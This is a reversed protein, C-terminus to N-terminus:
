RGIFELTYQYRTGPLMTSFDARLLRASMVRGESDSLDGVTLGEHLARLQDRTTQGCTGGVVRRASRVGWTTLITVDAMLPDHEIDKTERNWEGGSGRVPSDEIPFEYGAFSWNPHPM